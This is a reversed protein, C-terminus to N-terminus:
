AEKAVLDFQYATASHWPTGADALLSPFGPTNVANPYHQTELCFASHSTYLAGDKGPLARPLGNFTYMQLGPMDTFVTVRRGSLPDSVSAARGFGERRLCYNHDLGGFLAIDPDGSDLIDGFSM